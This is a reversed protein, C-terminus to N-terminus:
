KASVLVRALIDRARADLRRKAALADLPAFGADALKGRV